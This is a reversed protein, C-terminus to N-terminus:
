GGGGKDKLGIHAVIKREEAKTNKILNPIMKRNKFMGQTRKKKNQFNGGDDSDRNLTMTKQRRKTKKWGKAMRKKEARASRLWTEKISRDRRVVTKKQTIQPEHCAITRRAGIIRL